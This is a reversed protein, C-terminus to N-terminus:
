NALSLFVGVGGCKDMEAPTMYAMEREKGRLSRYHQLLILLDTGTKLVESKDDAHNKSKSM